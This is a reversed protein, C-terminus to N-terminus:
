SGHCGIFAGYLWGLAFGAIAGVWKLNNKLIVLM